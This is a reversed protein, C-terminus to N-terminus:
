CRKKSRLSSQKALFAESVPLRISQLTFNVRRWSVRWTNCVPVHHGTTPAHAIFFTPTAWMEVDGRTASGAPAQGGSPRRQGTRVLRHEAFYYLVETLDTCGYQPSSLQHLTTSCLPVLMTHPRAARAPAVADLHAGPRQALPPRAAHAPAVFRAARCCARATATSRQHKRSQCQMLGAFLAHRSSKEHRVRYLAHLSRRPPTSNGVPPSPPLLWVLGRASLCSGTHNRLRRYLGSPLLDARASTARNPVGQHACTGVHRRM